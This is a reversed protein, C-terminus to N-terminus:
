KRRLGKRISCTEKNRHEYLIRKSIPFMYRHEENNKCIWWVKIKSRKTLTKPDALLINNLYDWEKLLNHETDVLPLIIKGSCFPCEFNPKIRNHM